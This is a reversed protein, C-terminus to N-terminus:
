HLRFTDNDINIYIKGKEIKYNVNAEMNAKKLKKLADQVAKEGKMELRQQKTM